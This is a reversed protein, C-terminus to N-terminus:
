VEALLGKWLDKERVNHNVHMQAFLTVLKRIDGIRIDEFRLIEKKCKESTLTFEVRAQEEVASADEVEKHSRAYDPSSVNMRELRDQKVKTVAQASQYKSMVKVRHDLMVKLELIYRYSDRLEQEWHQAMGDALESDLLSQEAGIDRLRLFASAIRRDGCDESPTGAETQALLECTSRFPILAEVQARRIAVLKASNDALQLVNAELLTFYKTKQDFWNDHEVPNFMETVTTAVSTIKDGIFSLWGSASTVGVSGGTSKSPSAQPAPAPAPSSKEPLEGESVFIRLAACEALVPHACVRRLFRSLARRRYELFEPDFRSMTVTKEPLPPVIACREFNRLEEQIWLFENYRRYVTLPDKPWGAKTAQCTVKYQVYSNMSSEGIKQWEVVKVSIESSSEAEPAEDKEGLALPTVGQNAGTRPADEIEPIVVSTGDSMAVKSKSDDVEKFEDLVSTADDETGEIKSGAGADDDMWLGDSEAEMVASGDGGGMGPNNMFYNIDEGEIEATVTTFIDLDEAM